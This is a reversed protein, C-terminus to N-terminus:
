PGKILEAVWRALSRPETPDREVAFGAAKAQESWAGAPCRYLPALRAEAVLQGTRRRYAKAATFPAAVVEFRPQGDPGQGYPGCRVPAVERRDTKVILAMDAWRRSDGVVFGAPDIEVWASAAGAGAAAEGAVVAPRGPLGALAAAVLRTADLTGDLTYRGPERLHPGAVVEVSAPVAVRWRASRRGKAERIAAELEPLLAAVDVTLAGRGEADLTASAGAVTVRAGPVGQLTLAASTAPPPPLWCRAAAGRAPDNLALRLVRADAGVAVASAVTVLRGDGELRAHGQARQDGRTVAVPVRVEGKPLAARLIRFTAEGDVDVEDRWPGLTVQGGPTSRVVVTVVARDHHRKDREIVQVSLSLPVERVEPGCGTVAGAVLALAAAVKTM